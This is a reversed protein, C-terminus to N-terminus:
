IKGALHKIIIKVTKEVDGDVRGKFMGAFSSDPTIHNIYTFLTKGEYNEFIVSGETAKLQNARILTWSLKYDEGSNEFINKTTYISNPVPFPMKMEFSVVIEKETKSIVKSKILDPIFNKHQDFETYVDMNQKPTNPIIQMITVQPWSKGKLNIVRKVMKGQRLQSKEDPTMDAKHALLPFSILLTLLFATHKM